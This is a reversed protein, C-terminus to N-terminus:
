SGMYTHRYIKGKHQYFYLRGKGATEIRIAKERKKWRKIEGKGRVHEEQQERVRYRLVWRCWVVVAENWDLGVLM